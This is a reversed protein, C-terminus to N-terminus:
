DWVSGGNFGAEATEGCDVEDSREEIGSVRCGSATAGCVVRFGPVNSFLLEFRMCAGGVVSAAVGAEIGVTGGPPAGVQGAGGVRANELMM